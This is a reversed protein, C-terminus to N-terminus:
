TVGRNVWRVLALRACNTTGLRGFNMLVHLVCVKRERFVNPITNSKINDPVSELIMEAIHPYFLEEFFTTLNCGQSYYCSRSNIPYPHDREVARDYAEMLVWSSDWRERGLLGTRFNDKLIDLVVSRDRQIHFVPLQQVAAEAIIPESSYGSRLYEPNQTASYCTRMHTAVLNAVM